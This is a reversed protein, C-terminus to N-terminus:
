RCTAVTYPTARAATAWLRTLEERPKGAALRDIMPSLFRGYSKLVPMDNAAFAATLDRATTPTYLEVRGVFARVLESAAPQLTLPLTQDVMTRPAIYFLRAGETFWSDRWTDVMAKAEKAYLGHSVLIRELEATPPDLNGELALPEFSVRAGAGRRIAYGMAGGRNEFFIVDGLPAGDPSAVDIAGSERATARIPPQFAGIGRYFLFKERQGNVEIPSADTRRAIYYHTDASETPYTEAAGPLIRVAGWNADSRFEALRIKAPDVPNPTVEAHPYWESIAGQRFGVRVNMTADERAYFYLVPTEMRIRSMLMCKVCTYRFRDVFCPLDQPGGQADWDVADGEPGAVSTFTGWEHVVVPTAPTQAVPLAAAGLSALALVVAVFGFRRAM